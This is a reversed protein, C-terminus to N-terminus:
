NVSKDATDQIGNIIKEDLFQGTVRQAFRYSDWAGFQLRDIGENFRAPAPLEGVGLQRAIVGDVADVRNQVWDIVGDMRKLNGDSGFSYDGLTTTSLDLVDAADA